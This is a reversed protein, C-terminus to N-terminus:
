NIKNKEWKARYFTQVINLGMLYILYNSLQSKFYNFWQIYIYWIFQIDSFKTLFSFVNWKLIKIETINSIKIKITFKVKRLSFM